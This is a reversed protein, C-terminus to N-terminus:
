EIIRQEFNNKYTVSIPVKHEGLRVRNGEVEKINQTNIIFSRHVRCFMKKPLKEELSSLKELVMLPKRKETYVKVYNGSGEIFLIENCNFKHIKKDAKFFIVENTKLSELTTTETQEKKILFKNVAKLFRDFSIPKLLYDVVGYEYSEVGFEAFATTLIVKPAQQLTKLLDLGTMTPMKIDLFMVDVSQHHLVDLADIANSCKGVLELAEIKEIYQELIQQAIPEDDVIICKKKM